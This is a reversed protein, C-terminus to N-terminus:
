LKVRKKRKHDPIIVIYMYDTIKKPMFIIKALCKKKSLYVCKDKNDHCIRTYKDWTSKIGTCYLADYYLM